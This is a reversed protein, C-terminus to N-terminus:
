ATVGAQPLPCFSYHGRRVDQECHICYEDPNIDAKPNGWVNVTSTLFAHFQPSNTASTRSNQQSM